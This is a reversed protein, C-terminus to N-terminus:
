PLIHYDVTLTQRQGDTTIKQNCFEVANNGTRTKAEKFRKMNTFLGKVRKTKRKFQIVIVTELAQKQSSRV